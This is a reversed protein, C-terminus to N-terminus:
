LVDSKIVLMKERTMEHMSYQIGGMGLGSSDRGGFPMWDVRFATHDNIMVATANLKNSTDLADTLDNTYISAQFAFPLANARAIADAKDTYSYVCVVPGFIEKQSVAAENDPNLLVTPKYCTASLKEGGCLVKAGGDRAEDVWQAVRDVEKTLILPGVETDPSLPDGVKLLNKPLNM